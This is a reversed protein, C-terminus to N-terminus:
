VPFSVSMSQKHLGRRSSASSVPSQIGIAKVRKSVLHFGTAFCVHPNMLHWRVNLIPYERAQLLGEPNTEFFIGGNLSYSVDSQRLRERIDMIETEMSALNFHAHLLPLKRGKMGRSIDDNAIISM